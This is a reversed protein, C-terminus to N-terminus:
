REDGMIDYSRETRGNGKGSHGMTVLPHSTYKVMFEHAEQYCEEVRQEEEVVVTCRLTRGCGFDDNGPVDEGCEFSDADLHNLRTWTGCVPCEAGFESGEVESM